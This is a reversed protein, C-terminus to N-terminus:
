IFKVDTQMLQQLSLFESELAVMLEKLASDLSELNKSQRREIEKLIFTRSTDSVRIVAENPIVGDPGLTTAWAIEERLWDFTKIVGHRGERKDEIDTCAARVCQDAIVWDHDEVVYQPLYMGANVYVDVVVQLPYDTKLWQCYEWIEAALYAQDKTVVRRTPKKKKPDEDVDPGAPIGSNSFNKIIERRM